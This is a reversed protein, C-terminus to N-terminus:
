EVVRWSLSKLSSGHSAFTISRHGRQPVWRTVCQKSERWRSVTVCRWSLTVSRWLPSVSVEVSVRSHCVELSLFHALITHGQQQHIHVIKVSIHESHVPFAGQTFFSLTCQQTYFTHRHSLERIPFSIRRAAAPFDAERWILLPLHRETDQDALAPLRSCEMRHGCEMCQFSANERPGAKM